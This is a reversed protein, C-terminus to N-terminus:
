KREAAKTDTRFINFCIYILHSDSLAILHLHSGVDLAFRTDVKVVVVVCRFFLLHSSLSLSPSSCFVFRVIFNLLDVVDVRLIPVSIGFAKYTM